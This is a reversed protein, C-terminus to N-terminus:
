SAHELDQSQFLRDAVYLAREFAAVEHELDASVAQWFLRDMDFGWGGQKIGVELIRRYLEAQVDDKPPTTAARAYARQIADGYLRWQGYVQRPRERYPM